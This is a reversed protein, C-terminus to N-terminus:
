KKRLTVMNFAFSLNQLEKKPPVYVLKEFIQSPARQSRPGPVVQLLDSLIYYAHYKNQSLYFLTFLFLIAEVKGVKAFLFLFSSKQLPCYLLGEKQLSICL